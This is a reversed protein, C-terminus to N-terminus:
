MKEHMVQIEEKESMCGVTQRTIIYLKIVKKKMKLNLEEWAKM